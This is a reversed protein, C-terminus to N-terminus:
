KWDRTDLEHRFVASAGYGADALVVGFRVGAACATSCM